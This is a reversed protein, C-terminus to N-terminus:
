KKKYFDIKKYIDMLQNKMEEQVYCDFFVGIYSDVLHDLDYTRGQIKYKHINLKQFYDINFNLQEEEPVTALIEDRCVGERYFYCNFIQNEQHLNNYSELTYHEVNMKCHACFDEHLLLEVKNQEEISANELYKLINNRYICVVSEYNQSITSLFTNFDWGKTISSTLLIKPYKNRIYQELIPSNVIVENEFEAILDLIKNCQEDALHEETLLSNTFTIKCKLNNEKLLTFCDIISEITEFDGTQVNRGGNWILHDFSGYVGSIQANPYLTDETLNMLLEQTAIALKISNLTNFPLYFENIIM